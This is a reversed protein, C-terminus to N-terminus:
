TPKEGQLAACKTRYDWDTDFWLYFETMTFDPADQKEWESKRHARYREADKRVGALEATLEAIRKDRPIAAAQYTQWRVTLNVAIANRETYESPNPCSIPWYTCGTRYVGDPVDFVAEFEQQLKDM